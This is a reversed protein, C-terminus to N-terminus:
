RACPANRQGGVTGRRAGVGRVPRKAPQLCASEGLALHALTAAQPALRRAPRAAGATATGGALQETIDAQYFSGRATVCTEPEQSRRRGGGRERCM